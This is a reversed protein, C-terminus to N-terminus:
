AQHEVPLQGTVRYGVLRAIAVAHDAFREYYRGILAVDVAPEVGHAWDEAFLIGFLQRRLTDVEDDAADMREGGLPDRKDIADAASDALEAALLGMRAFVPQVPEPVTVAPHKLRAIKAIHQALNGMRNLDAVAHMASVVMRLDAAVPAQLALLNVCRQEVDDHLVDMEDDRSIVLEALALDARQLAESAETMMQSALRAMRALDDALRDLEAQFSERM